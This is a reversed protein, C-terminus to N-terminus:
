GGNVNARVFNGREDLILANEQALKQREEKPKIGTGPQSSGTAVEEWTKDALPNAERFWPYKRMLYRLFDGNKEYRIGDPMIARLAHHFEQPVTFLRKLPGKDAEFEGRQPLSHVYDLTQRGYEEHRLNAVMNFAKDAMDCLELIVRRDADSLQDEVAALAPDM